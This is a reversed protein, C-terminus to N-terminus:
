EVGPPPSVRHRRDASLRRLGSRVRRLTGAVGYEWAYLLSGALRPSFVILDVHELVDETWRLKYFNAEGGQDYGVRGSEFLAKVVHYDLVSGPSSSRYAEDFEARM